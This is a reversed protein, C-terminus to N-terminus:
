LEDSRLHFALDHLLAFARFKDTPLVLDGDQEGYKDMLRQGIIRGMLGVGVGKMAWDEFSREAVRNFCIIEIESHRADKVIRQFVHGVDERDGELLQLFARRNAVLIGTVGRERNNRSSAEEIEALLETDIDETAKSRYILMWTETEM